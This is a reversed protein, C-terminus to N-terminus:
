KSATGLIVRSEHDYRNAYVLGGLSIEARQQARIQYSKPCTADRQLAVRSITQNMNDM